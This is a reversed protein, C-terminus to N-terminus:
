REGGDERDGEEEDPDAETDGGEEGGIPEGTLSVNGARKVEEPIYESNEGLSQEYIKLKIMDEFSSLKERIEPKYFLNYVKSAKASGDDDKYSGKLKYAMDLAKSAAATDPGHDEYKDEMKKADENWVSVRKMDRKLLLEMHVNMLTDDPLYQKMLEKFTKNQTFGTNAFGVSEAAGQLDKMGNEMFRKIVMKYRIVSDTRPARGEFTQGLMRERMAEARRKDSAANSRRRKAKREEEEKLIFAEREEETMKGMKIIRDRRYAGSRKDVSLDISVDSM